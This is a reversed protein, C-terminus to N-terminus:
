KSNKQTKEIEARIKGAPDLEELTREDGTGDLHSERVEQFAIQAQRIHDVAQGLSHRTKLFTSTLVGICIVGLVISIIWATRNSLLVALSAVVIGIEAFLQAHDYGQTADFHAEVAPQFSDVCDKAFDRERSYDLHLRLLRKLEPVFGADLSGLSAEHRLKELEVMVMRFKTSSGSYDSNAQTQETMTRTLENHESGAMSACLAILVGILAITLGVHKTSVHATTEARELKEQFSSV